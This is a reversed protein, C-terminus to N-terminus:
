GNQRRARAALAALLDDRTNALLGSQIRVLLDAQFQRVQEGAGLTRAIEGGSVALQAPYFPIRDLLDTSLQQICRWEDLGPDVHGGIRDAWHLQLLQEVAQRMSEPRSFPQSLRKLWKLVAKENPRPMQMHRRILWSIRKVAAPPLKLRSLIMDALEAGKADHGPDSYNGKQNIIRIGPWGKGVDHLLAAWRLTLDRPAHCVVALTHGWGDFCHYAPNQPLGYLHRLEPLIPVAQDQGNDRCRCNCDLLGTELMVTLGIDPHDALLTKELEARVREVSLGSVRELCAEIAQLTAPEITFGLQASFRAARFMRLGDEAFRRKPDGVTRICKENIDTLGGFPDVIAGDAAMALANMTFDRRSLDEELSDCYAVSEPRHSDSGYIERRYSTVEYRDEGIVIVIVGFAAGVAISQWGHAKAVARVAEPRASTAIDIDSAPKGLVHDRVAGGVM